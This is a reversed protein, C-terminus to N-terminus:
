IPSVCWIAISHNINRWDTILLINSDNSVIVLFLPFADWKLKDYNATVSFIAEDHYFSALPSRDTSDYVKFYNIVIDEVATRGSSDVFFAFQPSPVKFEEDSIGFRIQRPFERDDQYNFYSFISILISCNSHPLASWLHITNVLKQLQPFQRRIYNIYTEDGDFHKRIPNGVLM